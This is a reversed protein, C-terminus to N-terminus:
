GHVFTEFATLARRQLRPWRGALRTIVRACAQPAAVLAILVVVGVVDIALMVLAAVELFRPVPVVLVLVALILVVALSDLVREVCRFLYVLLAVSIGVGLAVKLKSLPRAAGPGRRGAAARRDPTVRVRAGHGPGEARPRHPDARPDLGARLARGQRAQDLRGGDRGFGAGHLHGGGPRPPPLCSSDGRRHRHRDLRPFGEDGGPCPGL